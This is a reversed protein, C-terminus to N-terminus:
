RARERAEFVGLAACTSPVDHVRVGWVGAQAALLSTAATAADRQEPPVPEADANKGLRGLFTKRSAGLLVPYGLQTFEHLRAMLQWNHEPTKAFGLGPDLVIQERRVGAAELARCQTLLEGTVEAFVDQYSARQQMSDGHGRWHMAIYQVGTQAILGAMQPDALGASVDNIIEAGAEVAAAAVSARMTDVSVRLRARALAAVVPLVRRLEEAEDPRRSGPRTSEGGVDLIDAGQEALLRGHQVAAEPDLWRGGDSFSDPTVNVIGMVLPVQVTGRDPNGQGGSM